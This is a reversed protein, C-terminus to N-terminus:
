HTISYVTIVCAAGGGGPGLARETILNLEEHVAIPRSRIFNFCFVCTINRNHKQTLM